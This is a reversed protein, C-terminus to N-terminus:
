CVYMTTGNTCSTADRLFCNTTFPSGQCQVRVNCQVYLSSGPSSSPLSPSFPSPPHPPPSPSLSLLSLPSSSPLSPLPPSSLFRDVGQWIDPFKRWFIKTLARFCRFNFCLKMTLIYVPTGMEPISIYVFTSNPSAFSDGIYRPTMVHIGSQLTGYHYQLHKGWPLNM